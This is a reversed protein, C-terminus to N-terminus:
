SARASARIEAPAAPLGTESSLNPIWLTFMSGNAGSRELWLRGRLAEALRRCIYLGLGAGGVERTRSQDVQFFREFIRDRLEVPIGEGQDAVSIRIGAGEARATIAVLSGEPTYKFANDILNSLIRYTM